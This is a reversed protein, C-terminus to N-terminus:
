STGCERGLRERGPLMFGLGLGRGANRLSDLAAAAGDRQGVVLWAKGDDPAELPLERSRAAAQQGGSGFTVNQEQLIVCACGAGSLLHFISRSLGLPFHERVARITRGGEGLFGRM